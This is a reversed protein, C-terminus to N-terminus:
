YNNVKMEDESKAKEDAPGSGISTGIAPCIAKSCSVVLILCSFKM